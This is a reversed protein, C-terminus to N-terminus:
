SKSVVSVLYTANIVAKSAESELNEDVFQLEPIKKALKTLADVNTAFNVNQARISVLTSRVIGVVKGESTCVPGGSNGPQTPVSMQFSTDGEVENHGLGTVSGKSFKPEKGLMDSLPFGVTFLDQGLSLNKVPSISIPSTPGQIKIIAVDDKKDIAILKAKTPKGKVYVQIDTADEVVHAATALYGDTSVAFATGTGTAVKDSETPRINGDANLIQGIGGEAVLRLAADRNVHAAPMSVESGDRMGKFNGVKYIKGEWIRSGNAFMNSSGYQPLGFVMLITGDSTQVKVQQKRVENIVKPGSLPSGARSVVVEQDVMAVSVGTCVWGKGLNQVLELRFNTASADVVSAAAVMKQRLISDERRKEDMEAEYTAAKQSDYALADKYKDSLDVFKVRVIGNETLLKLGSPEVLSIQSSKFRRGDKTDFEPFKVAFEKLLATAEDKESAAPDEPMAALEHAKCFEPPLVKKSVFSIGGSHFLKIRAAEENLVRVNTYTKGDMTTLDEALISTTSGILMATLLSARFFNRPLQM